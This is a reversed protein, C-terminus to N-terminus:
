SPKTILREDTGTQITSEKVIFYHSWTLHQRRHHNKCHPTQLKLVAECEYIKFFMILPISGLVSFEELLKVCVECTSVM